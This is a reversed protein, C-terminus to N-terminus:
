AWLRFEFGWGSGSVRFLWAMFPRYSLLVSQYISFLLVLYEVGCKVIVCHLIRRYIYLCVCVHMHCVCINVYVYIYM